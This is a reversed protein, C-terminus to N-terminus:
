RPLLLDINHHWHRWHPLALPYGYAVSDEDKIIVGTSQVSQAIHRLIAKKPHFNIVFFTMDPSKNGM